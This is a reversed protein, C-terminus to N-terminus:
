VEDQKLVMAQHYLVGASTNVREVVMGGQCEWGDRLKTEVMDELEEVVDSTIVEYKM